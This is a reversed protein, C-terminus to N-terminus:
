IYTFGAYPLGWFMSDLIYVSGGLGVCSELFGYGWVCESGGICLAGLRYWDELHVCIRSYM